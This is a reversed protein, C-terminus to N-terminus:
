AAGVLEVEVRDRTPDYRARTVRGRAAPDVTPFDARYFFGRSEERALASAAYAEALVLVDFGEDDQRGAGRMAGRATRCWDVFGAARARSFRQDQFGALRRRVEDRLAADLGRPVPREPLGRLAAAGREQSLREVLEGGTALYSAWPLGVICDAALDHRAEGAAFVGGIDTAGHAHAIGGMSFGRIPGLAVEGDALVAVHPAGLNHVWYGRFVELDFRERPYRRWAEELWTAREGARLLRAGRLDPPYLVRRRTLDGLAFRFFHELNALGGGHRACRGLMAGANDTPADAFLGSFGGSALVLAGCLVQHAEDGRALHLGRCQGEEVELHTVRADIVQGGLAVFRALVAGVVEDGGRGLRPAPCADRPILAYEFPMFEVLERLAEFEARFHRQVTAQLEPHQTGSADTYLGAVAEPAGEALARQIVSAAWQRSVPRGGEAGDARVLLAPVGRQVLRYALWAGAIGGGVIAVQTRTVGASM